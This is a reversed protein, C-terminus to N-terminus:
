LGRFVHDHLVGAFFVVRTQLMPGDRPPLIGLGNVLSYLRASSSPRSLIQDISLEWNEDSPARIAIHPAINSFTAGESSFQSNLIPFNTLNGNHGPYYARSYIM